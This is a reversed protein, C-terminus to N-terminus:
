LLERQKVDGFRKNNAFRKKENEIVTIKVDTVNRTTGSIQSNTQISAGVNYFKGAEFTFSTSFSPTGGYSSQILNNSYSITHPGPTLIYKKNGITFTGGSDNRTNSGDVSFHTTSHLIAYAPLPIDELYWVNKKRTYTGARRGYLEYWASFYAHLTASRIFEPVVYTRVSTKEFAFNEVETLNKSFEVRELRRKKYFATRGIKVVPMGNIEEPIVVVSGKGKWGTITIANNEVIYQFGDTIEGKQGYGSAWILLGALILNVKKM